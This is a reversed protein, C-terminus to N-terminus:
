FDRKLRKFFAKWGPSGQLRVVSVMEWEQAGLKDAQDIIDQESTASIVQYEWQQTGTAQGAATIELSVVQSHSRGGATGTVTFPFVGTPATASATLALTSAGSGLPATHSTVGAPLGSTTVVVTPVAGTSSSATVTISTSGGQPVRVAASSVSLGFDTSGPPPPDFVINLIPHLEIVNPAAGHQGHPFDFMGVGTVQVPIDATQFSSTAVFKSDFAARARAIRTSFPSSSSICGPSPIEAIMTNGHEDQLVLHYDSDGHPGGEFKYDTLTANVVFVTTETPSVRGITPIPHPPPLAILEAITTNRVNALDVRQADPDTGTKVPWREV